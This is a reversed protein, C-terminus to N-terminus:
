TLDALLWGLRGPDITIDSAVGHMPRVRGPLGDGVLYRYQLSGVASALAWYCVNVYDPPFLEIVAAGAPCFVLNTLAAGHAGVVLEAESFLRVQEAVSLGGPDITEFGLPALAAIVQVENEVRRTNKRQGRTVYLRRHPPAVDAPLFQRRLWAAVWPPTRLHSDPLSPVVLHEARIHPHLASEVVCHEPIGLADLLERQFSTTRNVLFREPEVGAQRLLELRPLVDTLFHYYNDVGRTTLVGVTGAVVELTPLRVSLFIPHQTPRFAGYYPSLDFLLADGATVVAGYPGVARGGPLQAVIAPPVSARRHHAFSFHDAPLGDPQPRSIELGALVPIVNIGANPHAAAYDPTSAALYRPPGPRDPRAPWRRTVPGAIETAVLVGRKALPFLPRLPTPLRTM